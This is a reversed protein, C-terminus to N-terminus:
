CKEAEILVRREEWRRVASWALRREVVLVGCEALRELSRRYAALDFPSPAPGARRVDRMCRRMEVEAAAEDALASELREQLVQSASAQLAPRPSEQVPALHQDLVPALPEWRRAAADEAQQGQRRLETTAEAADLPPLIRLHDSM